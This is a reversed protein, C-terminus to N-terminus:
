EIVINQREIIKRVLYFRRLIHKFKHHSRSEKEQAIAGINDGYFPVSNEIKFIVDLETIFKKM